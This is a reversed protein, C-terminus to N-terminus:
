DNSSVEAYREESKRVIEWKGNIKQQNRRKGIADNEM